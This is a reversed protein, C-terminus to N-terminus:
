HSMLWRMGAWGLGAWGLGAWGTVDCLMLAEWSGTVLNVGMIGMVLVFGVHLSLVSYGVHTMMCVCRVVEM